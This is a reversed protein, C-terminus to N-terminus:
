RRGACETDFGFKSALAVVERGAIAAVWSLLRV